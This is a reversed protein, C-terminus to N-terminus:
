IEFPMKVKLPIRLSLYLFYPERYKWKLSLLSLVDQEPLM